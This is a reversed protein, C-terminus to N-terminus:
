TSAIIGTEIHFSVSEGPKLFRKVFVFTIHYLARAKQYFYLDEWNVEQRLIKPTDSDNHAM